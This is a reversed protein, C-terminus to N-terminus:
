VAYPTCCRTRPRYADGTVFVLALDAHDAGSAAMAELSAELALDAPAAGVALGSGAAIM